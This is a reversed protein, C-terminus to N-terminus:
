HGSHNPGKPQKNCARTNIAERVIAFKAMLERADPKRRKTKFELVFDEVKCKNGMASAAAWATVASRLDARDDTIPSVMNFAIWWSFEESDVRRMAERVTM